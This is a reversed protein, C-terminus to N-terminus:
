PYMGGMEYNNYQEETVWASGDEDDVENHFGIAWRTPVDDFVPMNFSCVGNRDYAGCVYYVDTHAPDIWKETIKGSTAMDCGALMLCGVIFAALRKV